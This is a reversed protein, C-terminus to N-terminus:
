FHDLSDGQKRYLTNLKNETIKVIKQQDSILVNNNGIYIVM